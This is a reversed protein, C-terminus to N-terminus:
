RSRPAAAPPEFPPDSVPAPPPERKPKPEEDRLPRKPAHEPEKGPRQSGNGRNAM